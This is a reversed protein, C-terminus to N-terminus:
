IAATPYQTPLLLSTNRLDRLTAANSEQPVILYSYYVTGENIQPVVLVEMGFDENGKIYALSCVFGVDARGGRILDNVEGYTPKLILRIRRGLKQEMNYLLDQYYQLTMTPSLVGAIVVRLANDGFQDHADTSTEQVPSIGSKEDLNVKITDQTQGSGMVLFMAVTVVVPGVALFWLRTQRKVTYIHEDKQKPNTTNRM